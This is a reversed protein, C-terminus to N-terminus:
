PWMEMGRTITTDDHFMQVANYVGIENGLRRRLPNIRPQTAFRSFQTVDADPVISGHRQM